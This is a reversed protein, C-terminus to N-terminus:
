AGDGLCYIGDVYATRTVQLRLSISEYISLDETEVSSYHDSSLPVCSVQLPLTEEALFRADMAHMVKQMAVIRDKGATMCQVEFEQLWFSSMRRCQLGVKM